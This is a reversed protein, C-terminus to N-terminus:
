QQSDCMKSLKTATLGDHRCQQYLDGCFLRSRGHCTAASPVHLFDGGNRTNYFKGDETLTWLQCSIGTQNKLAAKMEDVVHFDDTAFFCRQAQEAAVPNINQFKELNPTIHHSTELVKDTRRIHFAVSFKKPLHQIVADV